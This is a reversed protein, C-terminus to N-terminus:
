RDDDDDGEEPDFDRVEGETFLRIENRAKALQERSARALGLGEKYLAVSKELPLDGGELADVIEQLRALQQEFDAAKKRGAM